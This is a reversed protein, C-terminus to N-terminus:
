ASGFRYSIWCDYEDSWLFGLKYLKKADSFPIAKRDNVMICLVDHECHAPYDAQYGAMYKSFIQLAEILTFM